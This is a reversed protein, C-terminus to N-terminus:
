PRLSGDLTKELKRLGPQLTDPARHLDTAASNLSQEMGKPGDTAAILIDQHRLERTQQVSGGSRPGSCMTEVPRTQPGMVEDKVAETAKLLM